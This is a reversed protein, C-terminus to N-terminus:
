LGTLPPKGPNTDPLLDDEADADTPADDPPIGEALLVAPDTPTEAEAVVPDPELVPM